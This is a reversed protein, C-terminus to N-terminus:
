IFGPDMLQPSRNGIANENAKIILLPIESHSAGPIIARDINKPAVEIDAMDITKSLLIPDKSLSM